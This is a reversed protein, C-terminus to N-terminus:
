QCSKIFAILDGITIIKRIEKDPIEIEFADEIACILSILELSNINLDRLIITSEDFITNEDLSTNQMFIKKVRNVM